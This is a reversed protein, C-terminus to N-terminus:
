IDQIVHRPHSRAKASSTSSPFINSRLLVDVLLMGSPLEKHLLFSDGFLGGPYSASWTGNLYPSWEPFTSSGSTELIGQCGNISFRIATPSQAGEPAIWIFGSAEVATAHGEFSPVTPAQSSDQPSFARPRAERSISPRYTAEESARWPLPALPTPRRKLHNAAPRESSLFSQREWQGNTNLMSVTPIRLTAFHTKSNRVNTHKFKIHSMLNIEKKDRSFPELFPKLHQGNVKFSKTNNSNLLKVVGNSYVQQITFPGIWRSRLKHKVGYKALLTKFPKNCFHTGGDSIIAKPVGFRSFINEKLFKLVVRHDNCKCPIVEYSDKSFCLPRVHAKMAIVSSGRNSKSLSANKDQAKWESPVERTVLYNAIHAYWPASEILM